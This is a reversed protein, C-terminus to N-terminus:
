STSTPICASVRILSWTLQSVKSLPKTSTVMPSAYGQYRSHSGFILMYSVRNFISFLEHGLDSKCLWFRCRILTGLSAWLCTFSFLVASYITRRVRENTSSASGLVARPLVLLHPSLASFPTWSLTWCLYGLRLSSSSRTPRNLM